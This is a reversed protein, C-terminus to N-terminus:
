NGFEIEFKSPPHQVPNKPSESAQLQLKYKEDVLQVMALYHKTLEEAIGIAKQFSESSFSLFEPTLSQASNTVFEKVESSSLPKVIDDIIRDYEFKSQVSLPLQIQYDGLEKTKPKGQILYVQSLNCTIKGKYHPNRVNERRAVDQCIQVGNFEKFSDVEIGYEKGNPFKVIYHIFMSDIGRYRSHTAVIARIIELQQERSDNAAFHIAPSNALVRAVDKFFEGLGVSMRKPGVIDKVLDDFHEIFM